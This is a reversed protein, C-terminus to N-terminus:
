NSSSVQHDKSIRLPKFTFLNQLNKVKGFKKKIILIPTQVLKRAGQSIGRARFNVIMYVELPWWILLWLVRVQSWLFLLGKLGLSKSRSWRRFSKVKSVQISSRHSFRNEVENNRNDELFSCNIKANLFIKM